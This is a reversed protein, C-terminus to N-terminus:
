WCGCASTAHRCKAAKSLFPPVKQRVEYTWGFEDDGGKLGADTQRPGQFDMGEVTHNRGSVVWRRTHAPIFHLPVPSRPSSRQRIRTPVPLCSLGTYRPRFRSPLGSRDDSGICLIVAGRRLHRRQPVRDSCDRQGNRGATAEGNMADSTGQSAPVPGTITSAVGQMDADQVIDRCGELIEEGFEYCFLM